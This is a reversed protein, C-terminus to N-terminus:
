SVTVVSTASTLTAGGEDEIVVTYNGSDTGAVSPDKSYTATTAGNGVLDTGGKKWQYTLPGDGGVAVVSLTLAAPATVNLPTTPQTTIAFKTTILEGQGEFTWDFQIANGISFDGSVDSILGEGGQYFAEGLALSLTADVPSMVRIYILQQDKIFRVMDEYSIETGSPKSNVVATGSFGWDPEDTTKIPGCQTKVTTVTSTIKFKNTVACVLVKWVNNDESLEVLVLTGNINNVAM